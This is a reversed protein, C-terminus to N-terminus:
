NGLLCYELLLSEVVFLCYLFVMGIGMKKTMVWNSMHIISIVAAVMIFLTLVMITLGDSKIPVTTGPNVIATSLFWPVPLGILIDFINSGISSSVAMDGFGRKAVAVSSLLDPISTGAALITLGMVPDPIGYFHGFITAMWVMVYALLMIWVICMLFTAFYFKKFMPRRCDPITLFMGFALPFCLLWMFKNVIGEPIDFPNSPEDEDEVCIEQIVPEPSSLFEGSSKTVAPEPIFPAVVASSKNGSGSTRRNLSNDYKLDFLKWDTELTQTAGDAKDVHSGYLLRLVRLARAVRFVRVGRLAGTFTSASMAAELMILSVLVGDFANVSNTWYGFFGSGVMKLVMEIVFIWSFVTNSVNTANTEGSSIELVIVVLNAIIVCYILYSFVDSQLWIDLKERWWSKPENSLRIQETVYLELRENYYMITIYVAYMCLLSVSELTSIERDVVCVVLVVISVCYFVCDRALPWWTLTLNSTVFACMAIVFLVNFTASGVITGFGIDSSAVFVGMISTFLEPASGGAAMFTAGAVDEKLNLAECIGALAPEFYEDCIIALGIFMYFMFFVHFLIGGNSKGQESIPDAPFGDLSSNSVGGGCQADTSNISTELFRGVYSTGVDGVFPGVKVQEYLCVLALFVFFILTQVRLYQTRRFKRKYLHKLCQKQMSRVESRMLHLPMRYSGLLAKNM